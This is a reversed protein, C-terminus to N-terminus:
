ASPAKLGAGAVGRTAEVVEAEKAASAEATSAEAEDRAGAPYVCPDDLCSLGFSVPRSLPPYETKEMRTPEDAFM